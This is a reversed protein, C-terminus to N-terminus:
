NMKQSFSFANCLPFIIEPEIEKGGKERARPCPGDRGREEGAQAPGPRVPEIPVCAWCSCGLGM